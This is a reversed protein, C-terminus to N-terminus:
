LWPQKGGNKSVHDRLTQLLRFCVNVSPTKQFKEPPTVDCLSTEQPLVAALKYVLVGSLPVVADSAGTVGAM